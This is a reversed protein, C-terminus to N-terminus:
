LSWSTKEAKHEEFAIFHTVTHSKGDCGQKNEKCIYKKLIVRLAFVLCILPGPNSEQWLFTVKKKKKKTIKLKNEKEKKWTIYMKALKLKNMNSGRMVAKHATIIFM